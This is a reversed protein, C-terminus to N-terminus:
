ESSETTRRPRAPIEPAQRGEVMEVLLIIAIGPWSTSVLTPLFAWIRMKATGGVGGLLPPLLAWSSLVVAIFLILTGIWRGFRAPTIEGRELGFTHQLTQLTGRYEQAM